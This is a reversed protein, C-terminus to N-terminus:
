IGKIEYDFPLIWYKHKWDDKVQTLDTNPDIYLQSGRGNLSVYSDVYIAINKHGQQEFHDKLYHAYEVMFDPQTAMQKEQFATLFDRNNVYFYTGSEKNVVKFNAYGSKEMLMVRWSLRYGQETWFLEGPYLLYRFPFLIHFLFFISFVTLVKKSGAFSKHNVITDPTLKKISFFRTMWSLWKHHFKADFFLTTAIIM